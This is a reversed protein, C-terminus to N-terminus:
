MQGSAWATADEHPPMADKIMRGTDRMQVRSLSWLAFFGACCENMRFQLAVETVKNDVLRHHNPVLGGPADHLDPMAHLM